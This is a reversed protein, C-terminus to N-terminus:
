QGKCCDRETSQSINVAAHFFLVRCVLNVDLLGFYLILPFMLGRCNSATKRVYQNQKEARGGAERAAFKSDM